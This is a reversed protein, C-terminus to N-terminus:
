VGLSTLLMTLKTVDVTIDELIKKNIPTDSNKEPCKLYYYDLGLYSSM